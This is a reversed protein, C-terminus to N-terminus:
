FDANSQSGFEGGIDAGGGGAVPGGVADGTAGGADAGAGIDAGGRFLNDPVHVPVAATWNCQPDAQTQTAAVPVSDINFPSGPLLANAVQVKVEAMVPRNAGGTNFDWFDIFVISGVFAWEGTSGNVTLVGQYRVSFNGLTGNTMAGALATCNIASVGGGSDRLGALTSQFDASRRIDVGVPNCDGMEKKTLTIPNGTDDMYNNLFKRPLYHDFFGLWARRELWTAERRQVIDLNQLAHGIEHAMLQRDNASARDSLFIDAGHTFADAGLLAAAQASDRDRHVRVGDLNRGTQIELERRLREPLTAGPASTIREGADGPGASNKFSAPRGLLEDAKRECADGRTSASLGRGLIRDYVDSRTNASSNARKEGLTRNVGSNSVGAALTQNANSTQPLGPSRHSNRSSRRFAPLYRRFFHHVTM